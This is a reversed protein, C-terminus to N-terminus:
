RLPEQDIVQVDYRGGSVIVRFRTRGIRSEERGAFERELRALKEELAPPMFAGFHNPRLSLELARMVGSVSAPDEDRWCIGPIRSVDEDLLQTPRRSLDRVVKYGTDGPGTPIVLVAGLGQLQRVYDRGDRTNFRLDWRLARPVPTNTMVGPTRDGPKTGTGDPKGDPRGKPRSSTQDRIGELRNLTERFDDDRIPRLSPRNGDLSESTKVKPLTLEARPPPATELGDPAGLAAAERPPADNPPGPEGRDGNGTPGYVADVNPRSPRSHFGLWGVYGTLLLVGVVAFHLAFSGAGSLSAEHHPSYRQWFREEPPLRYADPRVATPLGPM